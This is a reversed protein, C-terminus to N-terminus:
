PYFSKIRGREEGTRQGRTKVRGTFNRGIKNELLKTPSLLKRGEPIFDWKSTM